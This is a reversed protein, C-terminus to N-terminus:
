KQCVHAMQMFSHCLSPSGLATGASLTNYVQVAIWVVDRKASSLLKSDLTFQNKQKNAKKLLLSSQINQCKSSKMRTPIFFAIAFICQLKFSM